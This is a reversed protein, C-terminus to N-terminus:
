VLRSVGHLCSPALSRFRVPMTCPILCQSSNRLAHRKCQRPAYSGLACFNLQRTQQRVTVKACNGVGLLTSGLHFKTVSQLGFGALAFSSACQRAPSSQFSAEVTHSCSVAQSAAAPGVLKLLQPKLDQMRFNWPISIIGSGCVEYRDDIAITIGACGLLKLFSEGCARYM